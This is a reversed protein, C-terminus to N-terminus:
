IMISKKLSENKGWPFDVMDKKRTHKDMYTALGGLINHSMHDYEM